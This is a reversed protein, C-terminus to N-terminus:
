QTLLNKAKTLGSDKDSINYQGAAMQLFESPTYYSNSETISAGHDILLRLLDIDTDQISGDACIYWVARFLANPHTNDDFEVAAGNNLMFEAMDNIADSSPTGILESFFYELSYDYISDSHEFEGDFRGGHDLITQVLNIDLTVSAEDAPSQGNIGKYYVLEPYKDLLKEVTVIDTNHIAESFAYADTEIIPFINGDPTEVEIKKPMFIIIGLVIFGVLIVSAISTLVIAATKHGKIGLVVALVFCIIMILAAIALVVLLIGVIALGMFGM